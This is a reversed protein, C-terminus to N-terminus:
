QGMKRYGSNEITIKMEKESADLVTKSVYSTGDNLNGFTLDMNVPDKNSDLYSKLSASIPRNNKLNLVFTISDGSKLYDNITLTGTNEPKKIDFSAKGADKATRIKVPDIPFYQGIVNEVEEMYEKLKRAKDEKMKGIIRRLPRGGKDSDKGSDSIPLKQLKGDAGYYCRMQENFKEKNKLTVTTTEIWEYKSLAKKNATMFEKFSALRDKQKTEKAFVPSIATFAFLVLIVPLIRYILNERKM